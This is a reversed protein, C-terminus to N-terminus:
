LAKRQLIVWINQQSRRKVGSGVFYRNLSNTPRCLQGVLEPKINPAKHVKSRNPLFRSLWDPYLNWPKQGQIRLVKVPYRNWRNWNNNGLLDILHLQYIPHLLTAIAENISIVIGEKSFQCTNCWQSDLCSLHRYLKSYQYDQKDKKLSNIDLDVLDTRQIISCSVRLYSFLRLKLPVDVMLNKKRIFFLNKAISPDHTLIRLAPQSIM